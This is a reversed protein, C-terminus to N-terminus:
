FKSEERRWLTQKEEMLYFFLSLIFPVFARRRLPLSSVWNHHLECFVSILDKSDYDSERVKGLM